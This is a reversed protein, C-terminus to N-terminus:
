NKQLTTNLPWLKIFHKQNNRCYAYMCTHQQISAVPFSLESTIQSWVHYLDSCSVHVRATEDSGRRYLFRHYDSVETTGQFDTQYSLNDSTKAKDQQSMFYFSKTTRPKPRIRNPCLVVQNTRSKMMYCEQVFFHLSTVNLFVKERGWLSWHATFMAGECCRRKFILGVWRLDSLGLKSMWPGGWRGSVARVIEIRLFATDSTFLFRRSGQERVRTAAAPRRGTATEKELYADRDTGRWRGERRWPKARGSRHNSGGRYSDGGVPEPQWEASRVRKDVKAQRSGPSCRQARPTVGWRAARNDRRRHQPTEARNPCIKQRRCGTRGFAETFSILRV